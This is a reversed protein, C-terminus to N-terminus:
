VWLWIVLIDLPFTSCVVGLTVLGRWQEPHRRMEEGMERLTPSLDEGRYQLLKWKLLTEASARRVAVIAAIQIGLLLASILLKAWTAM